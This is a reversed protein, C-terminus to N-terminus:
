QGNGGVEGGGEGESGVEGDAEAVVAARAGALEM